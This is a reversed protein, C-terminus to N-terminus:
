VNYLINLVDNFINYIIVMLITSCAMFIADLCSSFAMLTVIFDDIIVVMFPVLYEYLINIRSSIQFM